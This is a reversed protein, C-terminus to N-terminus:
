ILEETSFIIRNTETVYVAKYDFQLVKKMFQMLEKEGLKIETFPEDDEIDDMDLASVSVNLETQLASKLDISLREEIKIIEERLHNLDVNDIRVYLEIPMSPHVVVNFTIRADDDFHHNLMSELIEETTIVGNFPVSVEVEERVMEDNM